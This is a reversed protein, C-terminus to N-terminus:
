VQPRGAVLAAMDPRVKEIAYRVVGFNAGAKGVVLVFHREDVRQLIALGGEWELVWHQPRQTHGRMLALADLLSELTQELNRDFGVQWVMGFDEALLLSGVVGRTKGLRELSEALKLNVGAYFSQIAESSQAVPTRVAVELPVEAAREVAQVEPSSVEQPTPEVEQIATEVDALAPEVEALAPEVAQLAAEVEDLASEVERAAPEVQSTSTVSPAIELALKEWGEMCELTELLREVRRRSEELHYLLIPEPDTGSAIARYQDVERALMDREAELGTRSEVLDNRSPVFALHAQLDGPVPERQNLWLLLAHGLVNVPDLEFLRRLEDYAEGLHQQRAFVQALGLRAEARPAIELVRQFIQLAELRLDRRLCMTGSALLAELDEPAELAARRCKEVQRELTTMNDM